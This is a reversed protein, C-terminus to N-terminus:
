NNDNTAVRASQIAVIYKKLEETSSKLIGVSQLYLLHNYNTWDFKAQLLNDTIEEAVKRVIEDPSSLMAVLKEMLLKGRGYAQDKLYIASEKSKSDYYGGRLIRAITVSNTDKKGTIAENKQNLSNTLELLEKSDWGISELGFVLDRYKAGGRNIVTNEGSLAEMTMAAGEESDENDPLILNHNLRRLVHTFLEHHILTYLADYTRWNKTDQLLTEPDPCEVLKSGQNVSFNSKGTNPVARWNTTYHTNLIDLIEQIIELTRKPDVKAKRDALCEETIHEPLFKEYQPHLHKELIRYEEIPIAELTNLTSKRAGLLETTSHIKTTLEPNAYPLASELTTKADLSTLTNLASELSQRGYIEDYTHQLAQVTNGKDLKPNKLQMLLMIAKRKLRLDNAYNILLKFKPNSSYSQSGLSFQASNKLGTANNLAQLFTQIQNYLDHLAPIDITLFPTSDLDEGQEEMTKLQKTNMALLLYYERLHSIEPHNVLEEVQHFLGNIIEESNEQTSILKEQSMIIPKTYM